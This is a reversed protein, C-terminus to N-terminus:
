LMTGASPPPLPPFPLLSHCGRTQHPLQVTHGLVSLWLASLTNLRIHNTTTTTNFSPFMSPDMRRQCASRVEVLSALVLLTIGLLRICCGTRHSDRNMNSSSSNCSDVVACSLQEVRWKARGMLVCWSM